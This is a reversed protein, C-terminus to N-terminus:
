RQVKRAQQRISAVNYSYNPNSSSRNAVPAVTINTDETIVESVVAVTKEQGQLSDPQNKALTALTAEIRGSDSADLKDDPNLYLLALGVTIAWPVTLIVEGLRESTILIIVM